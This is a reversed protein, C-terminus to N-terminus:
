NINWTIFKKATSRNMCHLLCFGCFVQTTNQYKKMTKESMFIVVFILKQMGDEFFQVLFCFINPVLDLICKMTGGRVVIYPRWEKKSYKKTHPKDCLNSMSSKNKFKLIFFFTHFRWLFPQNQIIKKTNSEFM